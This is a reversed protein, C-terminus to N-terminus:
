AASVLERFHNGIEAVSKQEKRSCCDNGGAQISTIKYRKGSEKYKSTVQPLEAGPVCIIDTNVLANPDIDSILSTGVLCDPLTPSNSSNNSSKVLTEIM